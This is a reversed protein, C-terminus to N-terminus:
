HRGLLLLFLLKLFLLVNVQSLLVLGHTDFLTVSVQALSHLMQVDFVAVEILHAVLELVLSLHLLFASHAVYLQHLGALSRLRLQLGVMTLVHLVQAVM